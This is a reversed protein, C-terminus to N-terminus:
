TTKAQRATSLVSSVLYSCRNSAKNQQLSTVAEQCLLLRKDKGLLELEKDL